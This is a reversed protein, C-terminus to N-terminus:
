KIIIDTAFIFRDFQMKYDHCTEYCPNRYCNSHNFIIYNADLRKCQSTENANVHTTVIINQAQKNQDIQLRFVEVLLYSHNGGPPQLQFGVM